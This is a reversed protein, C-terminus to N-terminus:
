YSAQLTSLLHLVLKLTVAEVIRYGALALMSPRKGTAKAGTPMRTVAGSPLIDFLDTACTLNSPKVRWDHMWSPISADHRSSDYKCTGSLIDLTEETNICYGVTRGYVEQHTEGYNVKLKGIHGKESQFEQDSLNWFSYIKDHDDTVQTFRLGLLM